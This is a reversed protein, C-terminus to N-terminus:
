AGYWGDYGWKGVHTRPRKRDPNNSGHDMSAGSEMQKRMEPDSIWEDLVLTEDLNYDSSKEEVILTGYLERDMGVVADQHTHYFYTGPTDAKFEYTFSEGPKVANMTVGAVGDMANPVPVGHWHITVLDPLDNKLTIKVNEGEKVRIQAGPVSGNYTWANITVQDNLPHSVEKATLTFEKGTLIETKNSSPLQRQSESATKNESEKITSTNSCAALFLSIAGVAALWKIKM